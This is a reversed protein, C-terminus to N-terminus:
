PTWVGREMWGQDGGPTVVKVNVMTQPVNCATSLSLERQPGPIMGLFCPHDLGALPSTKRSVQPSQEHPRLAPHDAPPLWRPHQSPCQGRLEGPGVSPTADGKGGACDRHSHSWPRPRAGGARGREVGGGGVQSKSSGRLQPEPVLPARTVTHAVAQCGTCSRTHTHAM